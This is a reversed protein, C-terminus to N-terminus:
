AWGAATTASGHGTLYLKTRFSGGMLMPIHLTDDNRYQVVRDPAMKEHSLGSVDVQTLVPLRTGFTTLDEGWSAETNYSVAGLRSSRSM